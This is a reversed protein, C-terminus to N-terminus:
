PVLTFAPVHLPRVVSFHRRDLTAITDEELREAVAVVAADVFELPLDAYTRMLARVRRYDVADLNVVIISDDDISALFRDMGEPARRSRAVWDVDVLVPAPVAASPSKSLLEVCRAHDDDRQALAAVIVSTDCVLTVNARM